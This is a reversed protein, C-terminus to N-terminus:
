FNHADLGEAGDIETIRIAGIQLVDCPVKVRNSEIVIKATKKVYNPSMKMIDLAEAIWEIADIEFSTNQPKFDRIVKGVIASSSVYQISM